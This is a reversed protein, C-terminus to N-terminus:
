GENFPYDPHNQIGSIDYYRKKQKMGLIKNMDEDSINFDFLDLNEIM